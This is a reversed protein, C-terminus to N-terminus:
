LSVSEKGKFFTLVLLSIAEIVLLPLTFLLLCIVLLLFEGMGMAIPFTKTFGNINFMFELLYLNSLIIWISTRLQIILLPFINRIMHVILIRSKRIGKAKLYLVYDRSEEGELAKILFQMFFLTPLFAITVIPVFYPKHGFIGYLQLFKLGTTKYLTIVFFMFLFIILLDPVSEFFDTMKRFLNGIKRPALQVMLAGLIGVIIVVLLSAVVISMSYRYSEAMNMQEFLSLFQPDKIQTLKHINIEVFERFPKFNITLTKEIGILTPLAFVFLIGSIMLAIRLPLDLYKKM